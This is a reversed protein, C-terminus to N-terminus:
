FCGGWPSRAGFSQAYFSEFAFGYHDTILRLVPLGAEGGGGWGEEQGAGRYRPFTSDPSPRPIQAESDNKGSPYIVFAPACWTPLDAGRICPGEPAGRGDEERRGAPGGPAAM